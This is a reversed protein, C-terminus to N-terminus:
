RKRRPRIESPSAGYRKKFTRNFYSIDGFGVGFAIETISHKAFRMDRLATHARTLRTELLFQSFTTGEAEFLMQVYRPSICHRAAIQSVSLDQQHASELVDREITRLRAARLGRGEAVAAADRTAGLVLGLLDHVHRSVVERLPETASLKPREFLLHVYDVLLDLAEARIPRMIRDEVNAVGLLASPAFRLCLGTTPTPCTVSAPEGNAVLRASRPGLTAEVGRHRVTWAGELAIHLSLDDNSDALQQTTRHMALGSKEARLIRLGPLSRGLVRSRFPYGALVELDLRLVAHGMEERWREVGRASRVDSASFSVAAIGSTM